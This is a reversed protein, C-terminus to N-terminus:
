VIIKVASYYEDHGDGDGQASDDIEDMEGSEDIDDIGDNFQDIHDM